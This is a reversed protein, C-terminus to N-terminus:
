DRDEENYDKRLVISLYLFTPIIVIAFVLPIILYVLAVQFPDSPSM